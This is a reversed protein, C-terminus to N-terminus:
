MIRRILILFYRKSKTLVKQVTWFLNCHFVYNQWGRCIKKWIVEVKMYVRVLVSLKTEDYVRTNASSNWLRLAMIVGGNDRLNRGSFSKRSFLVFIRSLGKIEFLNGGKIAHGGTTIKVRQHIGKMLWSKTPLVPHFDYFYFRSLSDTKSFASHSFSRGHSCRCLTAFASFSSRM